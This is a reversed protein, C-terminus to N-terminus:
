ASSELATLVADNQERTGITLRLCNPHHASRSFDRILYGAQETAAMAAAPDAFEALLFNADSPFVRTVVACRNLAGRVREREATLAALRAPQEAHDPGDLITLLAEIVPTAIAYPALIKDLLEVIFPDGILAGARAGAMAYAKSLTRLTVVHPENQYRQQPAEGDAFEVYAADFVILCRGRTADILTDVAADSMRNGTPNNPSTVFILKTAPDIAALIAATDLDFAPAQTLPVARVSANQIKAYVAYMGFTPPCVIVNDEGPRCFARILLDIAESSGRVFKVRENPQGYERAMRDTIEAAGDLPYWNLGRQSTDAPRRTPLENANLRVTEAAYSAPKYGFLAVIEPRALKELTQM